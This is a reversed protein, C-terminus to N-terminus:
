CTCAADLCDIVTQLDPKSAKCNGTIVRIVSKSDLHCIIFSPDFCLSALEGWTDFDSCLCLGKLYLCLGRLVLEFM